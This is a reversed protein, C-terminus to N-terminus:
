ASNRPSWGSGIRSWYTSSSCCRREARAAGVRGTAGAAGPEAATGTRRGRQTEGSRSIEDTTTRATMATKTQPTPRIIAPNRARVSSSAPPTESASGVASSVGLGVGSAGNDSTSAWGAAAGTPPGVAVSAGGGM